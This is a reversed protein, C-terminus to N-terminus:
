KKKRNAASRRTRRGPTKITRPNEGSKKLTEVILPHVEAIKEVIDALLEAPREEKSKLATMLSKGSISFECRLRHGRLTAYPAVANQGAAQLDSFLKLSADFSELYSDDATVSEIVEPVDYGYRPTPSQFHLGEVSM